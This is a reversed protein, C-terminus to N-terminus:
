PGPWSVGRSPPGLGRVRGVANRSIVATPLNKLNARVVPPYTTGTFRYASRILDISGRIMPTSRRESMMTPRHNPKMTNLLTNACASPWGVGGGAFGTAGSDKDNALAVDIMAGTVSMAAVTTVFGTRTTVAVTAGSVLVTVDAVVLRVAVTIRVM